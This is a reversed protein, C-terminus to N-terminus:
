DGELQMPAVSHRPDESESSVCNPPGSCGSLHDLQKMDSNKGKGACGILFVGVVIIAMTKLDYSKSSQM